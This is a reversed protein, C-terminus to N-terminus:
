RNRPPCLLHHLARGRKGRPPRPPHSSPGQLHRAGLAGHCRGHWGEDVEHREDEVDLHQHRLCRSLTPLRYVNVFKLESGGATACVNRTLAPEGYCPDVPLEIYQLRPSEEFVDNCILVGASLNVWCLQRDGIPVVDAIDTTSWLRLERFERGGHSILPRRVIWEGSRFLLLEPTVMGPPTNTRTVEKLMFEAVVLEDEGRRILGTAYTAYSLLEQSRLRASAEETVCCPPLLSLLPPREAAGANYVFFDPPSREEHPGFDKVLRIRILLSDGHAAVVTPWEDKVGRPLQICVRSAAPPEALRLSVQLPHGATTFATALTRVDGNYYPWDWGDVKRRCSGELMVWQPFAASSSMAAAVPRPNEM